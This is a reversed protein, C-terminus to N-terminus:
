SSPKSIEEGTKLDIIEVQSQGCKSSEPGVEVEDMVEAEFLVGEESNESGDPSVGLKPWTLRRRLRPKTLCNNEILRQLASVQDLRSQIKEAEVRASERDEESFERNEAIKACEDRRAELEEEDIGLIHPLEEIGFEPCSNEVDELGGELADEDVHKKQLDLMALLLGRCVDDWTGATDAGALLARMRLLLTTSEEARRDLTQKAVREHAERTAEDVSEGEMERIRAAYKQRLVLEYVEQTYPRGDITLIEDKKPVIGEGTESVLTRAPSLFAGTEDALKDAQVESLKRKGAEIAEITKASYGIMEGLRERSVHPKSIVKKLIQNDDGKPNRAAETM